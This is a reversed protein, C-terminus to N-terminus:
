RSKAFSEDLGQAVTGNDDVTFSADPMVVAAERLESTAVPDAQVAPGEGFEDSGLVPVTEGRQGHVNGRDDLDSQAIVTRAADDPERRAWGDDISSRDGAHDDRIKVIDQKGVDTGICWASEPPAEGILLVPVVGALDDADRGDHVVHGPALADLL